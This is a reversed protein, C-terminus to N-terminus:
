QVLCCSCSNKCKQCTEQWDFEYCCCCCPDVRRRLTRANKSFKEAEDALRIAKERLDELRETGSLLVAISQGVSGQVGKIDQRLQDIPPLLNARFIREIFDKKRENFNEKHFSRVIELSINQIQEKPYTFSTVFGILYSEDQDYVTLQMDKAEKSHDPEFGLLFSKVTKKKILIKLANEESREMKTFDFNKAISKLSGDSKKHWVKLAYLRAYETTHDHVLPTGYSAQEHFFSAFINTSFFLLFISKFIKLHM